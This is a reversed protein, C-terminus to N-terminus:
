IEYHCETLYNTAPECHKVTRPLRRQRKQIAKKARAKRATAMMKRAMAHVEMFFRERASTEGQRKKADIVVTM